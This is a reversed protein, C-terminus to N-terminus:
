IHTNACLQRHKREVSTYKLHCVETVCTIFPRGGAIGHAVRVVLPLPAEHRIQLAHADQLVPVRNTNPDAGTAQLRALDALCGSADARTSKGEMADLQSSGLLSRWVTPGEQQTPGGTRRTGTSVLDPTQDRDIGGTVAFSASYRKPNPINM